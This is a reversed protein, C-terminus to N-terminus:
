LVVEFTAGHGEGESRAEITGGHAEVIARVITLGLGLGGLEADRAQRGREFIHPLLEASIGRGTDRVTICARGDRPESRVEVLGGQPTFKLANSLLNGFVQRLRARDALASPVEELRTKLRIGQASAGPEAARVAEQIVENLDLHERKLDLKGSSIRSVDLLDDVLRAQVRASSEIMEAAEHLDEGTMGESRMLRSWGIISTMPTRLEHTVSSFFEDRARELRRREDIDYFAVIGGIVSGFADRVPAGHVAIWVNRGDPRQIVMEQVPVAEGALTRALPWEHPAVPRGDAHLAKWYVYSAIDPLEPVPSGTIEEVHRNWMTIRGSPTEAVLVAAPVHDIVTRLRSREKELAALLAEREALDARLEIERLTSTALEQLIEVDLPSWQRPQFDIACFSGLAHGYSTVLPVGLYARVGLSQVTPVDRYQSHLTDEIILPGDSVIAYHCFTTGTLQRESALPEPFGFCSKYFDRKDDVLSIFTVPAGTLRAALRTLRDFSAETESDLLKTRRLAALREPNHLVSDVEPDGSGTLMGDM